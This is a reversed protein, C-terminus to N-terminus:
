PFLFMVGNQTPGFLNSADWAIVTKWYSRNQFYNISRGTNVMPPRAGKLSNLLSLLFFKSSSSVAVQNRLKNSELDPLDNELAPCKFAQVKYVVM